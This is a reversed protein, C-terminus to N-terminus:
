ASRRARFSIEGCCGQMASPLIEKTEYKVLYGAAGLALARARDQPLSSTSLVLFSVRGFQQGHSQVWTLVDFGTLGPMKIDLLVLCPMWGTGLCDTLFAIADEGNDITVIPNDVGAQQIIWRTIFIDDPNDDVVLIPRTKTLMTDVLYLYVAGPLFSM